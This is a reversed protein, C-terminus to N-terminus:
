IQQQRAYRSAPSWDRDPFHLVDSVIEGISFCVLALTQRAQQPMANPSNPQVRSTGALGERQAPLASNRMRKIM